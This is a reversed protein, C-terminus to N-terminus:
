RRVKKIFIQLLSTGYFGVIAGSGNAIADALEPTRVGGLGQIFELLVGYGALALPVLFQRGRERLQALFASTGLAGYAMFHAVKDGISGNGLFVEAIWQALAFGQGTDDPNPTVTLYTVILLLLAFGIRATRLNQRTM